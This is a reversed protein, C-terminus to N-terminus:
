SRDDAFSSTSHPVSTSASDFAAHCRHRPPVQACLTLSLDQDHLPVYRTYLWARPKIFGVSLEVARADDFRVTEYLVPLTGAHVNRCARNLRSVTDLDDDGAVFEAVTAIVDLPCRPGIQLSSQDSLTYDWSSHHLSVTTDQGHNRLMAGSLNRAFALNRYNPDDYIPAAVSISQLENDM